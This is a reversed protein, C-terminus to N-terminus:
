KAFFLLLFSISHSKLKIKILKLVDKRCKLLLFNFDKGPQTSFIKLNSFESFFICLFFGTKALTLSLQM